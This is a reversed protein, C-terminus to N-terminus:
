AYNCEFLRVKLKTKMTENERVQLTKHLIGGMIAKNDIIEIFGRLPLEGEHYTGTIDVLQISYKNAIVLINEKCSISNQSIILLCPLITEKLVIERLGKLKFTLSLIDHKTEYNELILMVEFSFDETVGISKVTASKGNVSHLEYTLKCYTGLVPIVIFQLIMRDNTTVEVLDNFSYKFGSTSVLKLPTSSVLRLM